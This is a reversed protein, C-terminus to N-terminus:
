WLINRSLNNASYKDNRWNGRISNSRKLYSERRKFDNHFTFDEYGMQGFHIRKKTKPHIIMYKKNDRTSKYIAVGYRVGKNHVIKPDSYNWIEDTIPIKNAKILDSM